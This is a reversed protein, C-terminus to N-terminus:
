SIPIQRNGGASVQAPPCSAWALGQVAFPWGYHYKLSAEACLLVAHNVPYPRSYIATPLNDFRHWDTVPDAMAHNAFKSKPTSSRPRIVRPITEHRALQPHFIWTCHVMHHATPIPAFVDVEIVHVSLVEELRQGLCALLSAPLNMRIAQHAIMVVHHQLRGISVKCTDGM